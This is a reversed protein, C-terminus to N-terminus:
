ERLLSNSLILPLKMLFQAETERKLRAVKHAVCSELLTHTLPCSSHLPAPSLPMPINEVLLFPVKDTLDARTKVM